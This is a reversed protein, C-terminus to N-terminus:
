DMPGAVREPDLKADNWSLSWHLHAGSARGTAGVAGIREGQRVSQGERVDVRSLHLFSSRLGAGHDLIVLNGEFSFAPPSALVVVGDAPAVVPAGTAAAVDVGSHFSGPEGRYIRQSGFRGSIRGRAPWMFDQRWGQADTVRARAAHMRLVEAERRTWAEDGERPLNRAVNVRQINWRRAAIRLVHERARGDPATVVLRAAPGHDRDFGLIVRGDPAVPVDRGDLSVRSGPAVSGVILGGQASELALIPLQVPRDIPGQRVCLAIACLDEDITPQGLALLLAAAGGIV